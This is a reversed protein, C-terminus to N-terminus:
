SKEDHNVKITDDRGHTTDNSFVCKSTLDCVVSEGEGTSTLRSLDLSSIEGPSAASSALPPTDTAAISNPWNIELMEICPSSATIRLVCEDNGRSFLLSNITTSDLFKACNMVPHDDFGDRVIVRGIGDVKSRDHYIKCRKVGSRVAHTGGGDM